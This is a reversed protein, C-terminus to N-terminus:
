YAALPLHDAIRPNAAHRYDHPSALQLVDMREYVFDVFNLFRERQLGGLYLEEPPRNSTIVCTVGRSMLTTFLKGLIMADAVDKVELEDLCLLQLRSAIVGAVHEVPNVVTQQQQRFAHIEAHVENMFAHFHVRRATVPTSQYFLNMLLSKGRGVAGWIYLSCPPASRRSPLLRALKSTRRAAALADHLTQLHAIVLRQAEDDALRGATVHQEYVQLPTATQPQLAPPM